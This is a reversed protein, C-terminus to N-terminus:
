EKNFYEIIDIYSEAESFVRKAYFSGWDVSLNWCSCTVFNHVNKSRIYDKCKLCVAWNIFIDWCNFKERYEKTVWKSLLYLYDRTKIKEPPVIYVETINERKDM